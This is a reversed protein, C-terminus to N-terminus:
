TILGITVIVVPPQTLLKKGNLIRATFTPEQTRTAAFASVGSFGQFYGSSLHQCSSGVWLRGPIERPGRTM